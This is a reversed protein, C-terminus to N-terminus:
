CHAFITLFRLLFYQVKLPLAGVSRCIKAGGYIGGVQDQWGGGSSLLQELVLVAHILAEKSYTRGVAQGIAHLLTAGLISSGGMGSGTPMDSETYIEIGSGAAARLQEALPAAGQELSVLGVCLVAAKLLAAPAQPHNYDALDPLERCVVEVGPYRLQLVPEEIRRARAMMPHAGNIKLALNVVVGGVDYSVPPTDTWGGSLDIRAPSSATAWSGLAAPPAESFAVHQSASDVCASIILAAAREYHRAARMIREPSDLWGGRVAALAAISGRFSDASRSAESLSDEMLKLAPAWDENRAPGSRMGGAGPYRSNAFAALLDATSALARTALDLDGHLSTAIEDMAALSEGWSERSELALRSFTPLLCTQSTGREHLSVKVRDLDIKKSLSRQWQLEREVAVRPLIEAMSLRPQAKWRQVAETASKAAFSIYDALSSYELSELMWQVDQVGGGVVWLRANWLCWTSPERVDAWLEQPHLKTGLGCGRMFDDWSRGLFSGEHELLADGVSYLIAVDLGGVLRVQQLVTAHPLVLKEEGSQRAVGSVLCGDGITADRLGLCHEVVTGQGIQRALPAADLYSNVSVHQTQAGVQANEAVFAMYEATSSIYSLLCRDAGGPTEPEPNALAHRPAVLYLEVDHLSTWLLERLKRKKGESGELSARRDRGGHAPSRTKVMTSRANLNAWDVGAGQYESLTVSGAAAGLVDLHLNFPVAEAGADYGYYTCGDIPQM